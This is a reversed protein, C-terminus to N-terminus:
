SNCKCLWSLRLSIPVIHPHFFSKSIIQLGKVIDVTVATLGLWVSDRQLQRGTQLM